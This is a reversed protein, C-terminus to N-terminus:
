KVTSGSTALRAGTRDACFGAAPYLALAARILALGHRRIVGDQMVSVASLFQMLPNLYQVLGSTVLRVQRAAGSFLILPSIYYGPSPGGCATRGHGRHGFVLGGRDRRGPGDGRQEPGRWLAAVVAKQPKTM